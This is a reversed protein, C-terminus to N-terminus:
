VGYAKQYNRGLLELIKNQQDNLIDFLRYGDEYINIMFEEFKQFVYRLTVKDVPKGVQNKLKTGTEKMKNQLKWELGSFVALSLTMVTLLSQIRENKSLFISDAFFEPDKLFRFGREVRSQSKYQKLLEAPKWDREADNTAIVFYSKNRKVMKCYDEDIAVQIDLKYQYQKQVDPNAVKPKRGRKPIEEKIIEAKVVKCYSCCKKKFKEIEKEADPTCSYYTKQYEAIKKNQKKLENEASREVSHENRSEAASSHVLLWKQRVDCDDVIYIKGANVEDIASMEDDRHETIFKQVAKLKGDAARTVYKIGSEHMMKVNDCSYLASDGCLYVYGDDTYEKFSDFIKIMRQFAKSDNSNGNEPEMFLPIGTENDVMMQEMIQVLEPHADRSYGRTINIKHPVNYPVQENNEYYMQEHGHYHFSTSDINVSSVKRGLFNLVKFALESFLPTLGYEFMADLTRGIVDDNFWEPKFKFGLITEVDKKRFYEHCMYLPKSTYGLGNIIMLAVVQGHSFHFSTNNSLKPIMEDIKEMIGTERIFAGVMGLHHICCNYFKEGTRSTIMENM